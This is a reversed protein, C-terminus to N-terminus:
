LAELKPIRWDSERIDQNEIIFCYTVFGIKPIRALGRLSDFKDNDITFEILKLLIPLGLLM